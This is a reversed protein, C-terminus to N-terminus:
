SKPKRNKKSKTTWTNGAEETIEENTQIAVDLEENILDVTGSIGLTNVEESYGMSALEAKTEAEVQNLPTEMLTQYEIETMNAIIPHNVNNSNKRSLFIEEQYLEFHDYCCALIRDIKKLRLCNNCTTFWKQGNIKGNNLRISDSDTGNQCGSYRCKVKPLKNQNSM